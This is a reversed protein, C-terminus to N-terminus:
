RKSLFETWMRELETFKAPKVMFADVGAAFADHRDNNAALGTLAIIYSKKFTSDLNELSRIERTAETGSLVPM